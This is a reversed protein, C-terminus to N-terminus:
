KKVDKKSNNSTKKTTKTNSNSKKKSTTKKKKTKKDKNVTKDVYNIVEDIPKDKKNKPVEYNVDKIFIKNENYPYEKDKLLYFLITVIITMIVSMLLHAMIIDLIIDIGFGYNIIPVSVLGYVIIASLVSISTGFLKFGIIRFYEYIYQLVFCSLMLAILNTIIYMTDVKFLVNVYNAFDPILNQSGLNTVLVYSLLIFIQIFVASLVSSIAEKRNAINCLLLFCLYIFPFTIFNSSIILESFNTFKIGILNSIIVLVVLLNSFFVRKFSNSM